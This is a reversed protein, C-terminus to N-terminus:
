GYFCAPDSASAEEKNGLDGAYKKVPTKNLKAILDFGQLVQGFVIRKDDLKPNASSSITFEFVGGGLKTSVIGVRDHKLANSDDNSPAERLMFKGKLRGFDIREDEIIRWVQSDELNVPKGEAAKSQKFPQKKQLLGRQTAAEINMEQCAAALKGQFLEKFMSSTEPAAKGFLGIVIRGEAAAQSDINSGRNQGGGDSAANVGQIKIDMFVRDTVESAAAIPEPSVKRSARSVTPAEEEEEEELDEAQAVLVHGVLISPLLALVSRRATASELSWDANQSARPPTPGQRTRSRAVRQLLPCMRFANVQANFAAAMVMSILMRRIYKQMM